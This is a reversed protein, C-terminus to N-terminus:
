GPSPGMGEGEEKEEKGKGETGAARATKTPELPPKHKKSFPPEQDEQSKSERTRKTTSNPEQTNVKRSSDGRQDRKAQKRAKPTFLTATTKRKAGPRTSRNRM